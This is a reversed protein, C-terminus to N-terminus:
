FAGKAGRTGRLLLVLGRDSFAFSDDAVLLFLEGGVLFLNSLEFNLLAM